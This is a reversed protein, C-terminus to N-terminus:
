IKELENYKKRLIEMIELIYSGEASTLSEHEV